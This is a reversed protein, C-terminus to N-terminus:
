EGELSAEPNALSAEPNAANSALLDEFNTCCVEPGFEMLQDYSYNGTCVAICPLANAKAAAIDAPTDGVVCVTAAPQSLMERAQTAANAIMDARLEYRDSFGGFRFWTRMGITEVKLWGIEELNGTALGLLAGQGHLYRLIAEVGPMTTLQLNARSDTVRKRMAAFIPELMPRWVEDRVGAARFGDRLIAPDTSGHLVIGTLDLQLGMVQRVSDAFSEYHIRDRSRLLTGDIDFLYAQQSDWPFSDRIFVRAEHKPKEATISGTSNSM